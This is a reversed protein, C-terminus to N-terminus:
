KRRNLNDRRHQETRAEQLSNQMSEGTIKGAKLQTWLRQAWAVLDDDRIGPWKPMPQTKLMKM